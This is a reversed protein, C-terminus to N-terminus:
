AEMDPGFIWDIILVVPLLFWGKIEGIWYNM